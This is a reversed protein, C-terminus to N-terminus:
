VINYGNKNFFKIKKNRQEHQVIYSIEEQYTKRGFAKKEADSTLSMWNSPYQNGKDDTWARGINITKKNYKCVMRASRDRM